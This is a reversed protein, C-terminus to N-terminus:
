WETFGLTPHRFNRISTGDGSVRVLVKQSSQANDNESELDLSQDRSIPASGVLAVSHSCWIEFRSRPPLSLKVMSFDPMPIM